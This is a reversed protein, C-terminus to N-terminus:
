PMENFFESLNQFVPRGSKELRSQSVHGNTVLCCDIGMEEAVESDHLTDGVMIVQHKEEKISKILDLGLETKGTAYQNDIGVVNLFYSSLDHNEIWDILFDHKGASLVSQNLGQKKFANLVPLAESHLDVKHFNNGYYNVFEDGAIEFPEKDFNFGVRKYYDVVPFCFVDQYTNENITALNRKALAKNIAEVCLWRDNLLTGNWDWIIHKYKPMM